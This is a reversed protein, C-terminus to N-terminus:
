TYAFLKCKAELWGYTFIVHVDYCMHNYAVKIINTHVSHLLTALSILDEHMCVFQNYIFMCWVTFHYNLTWIVFYHVWLKCVNFIDSNNMVWSAM